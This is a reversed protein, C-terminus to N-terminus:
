NNRAGQQIWEELLTKEEPTLGRGYPPMSAGVRPTAALKDILFSDAISSPKVLVQRPNLLSKRNVLEDYAPGASLDLGPAQSKDYHCALCSERLAPMVDDKFSVLKCESCKSSVDRSPVSVVPTAVHHGGCAVNMILGIWFTVGGIITVRNVILKDGRDM